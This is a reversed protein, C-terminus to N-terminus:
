KSEGQDCSANGAAVLAAAREAIPVGDIGFRRVQVGLRTANARYLADFRAQEGPSLPIQQLGEKKAYEQGITLAHDLQEVMAAEWIEEGRTLIDREQPTLRNWLTLSMARAPYAGRSIKITSYYKGVDALHMSRLSDAPAVVGDIVGRAMAPYVEAMSMNVPDAGLARLVDATDAQARLRLGKLDALSRVARTRTLIGPFNGGQVALIRLGRIESNMQPFEAALCHYIAIQQPITAIGSYFSQQVRQLHASRAYMPTIMGIDAVGHRIEVMNDNSSLLHGGWYPKIRIKGGSQAEVWKMWAIDAQSFTHNSPYPSAYTLVRVGSKPPRAGCGWLLLACAISLLARM